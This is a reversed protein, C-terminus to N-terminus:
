WFFDHNLMVTRLVTRIVIQQEIIMQTKPYPKSHPEISNQSIGVFYIVDGSSFDSGLM